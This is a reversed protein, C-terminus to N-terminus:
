CRRLRPSSRKSLHQLYQKLIESDNLLVNRIAIEGVSYSSAIFPRYRRFAFCFTRWLILLQSGKVAPAIDRYGGIFQKALWDRIKKRFMNRRSESNPYRLHCENSVQTNNFQISGTFYFNQILIEQIRCSAWWHIDDFQDQYPLVIGDRVVEHHFAMMQEDNVLFSQYKLWKLPTKKTKPFVPVAISPNLAMLHEEFEGWGGKTFAIDDDCFIYYTYDGRSLVSELMKNRGQAWSSDPFFIAEEIPKDYTLFIADANERNALHLYNIVLDSRGQVLYIFSKM